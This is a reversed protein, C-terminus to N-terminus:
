HHVTEGDGSGHAAAAPAQAAPTAAGPTQAAPTQAGPTTVPTTAPTSAPTSAGTTGTAEPAAVTVYTQWKHLPALLTDALAGSTPDDPDTHASVAVVYARLYRSFALLPERLGINPDQGEVTIGLSKGYAKHAALLQDLIPKGGLRAIEADYGESAIRAVKAEGEAWEQKYPLHTFKLGDPFLVAFMTRILDADPSTLKCWAYLWDHLASFAHDEAHDASRTRQPDSEAQPRRSLAYSLAGHAKELSIARAAILEPLATHAKIATLLEQGLAIASATNLTPLVIIDQAAYSRM